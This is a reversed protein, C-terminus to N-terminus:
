NDDEIGLSSPSRLSILSRLNAELPLHLSGVSFGFVGFSSMTEYIKENQCGDTSGNGAFQAFKMHHVRESQVVICNGPVQWGFQPAQVHLDKGGLGVLQIACERLLKGIPVGM